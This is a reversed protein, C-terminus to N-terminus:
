IHLFGAGVTGWSDDARPATVDLWGNSLALVGKQGPELVYGETSDWPAAGKGLTNITAGQEVTLGKERNGVVLFVQAAELVAGDRVFIEDSRTNGLSVRWADRTSGYGQLSFTSSPSGGVSIGAAGLRNLMGSEVSMGEFGATPAAGDALIEIRPGSLVVTGGRGKEAPAFRAVGEAIKLSNAILDLQNRVTQLNRFADGPKGRAVGEAIKLS